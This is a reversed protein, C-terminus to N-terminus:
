KRFISMNSSDYFYTRYEQKTFKLSNEMVKLGCTKRFNFTSFVKKSIQKVVKSWKPPGKPRPIFSANM